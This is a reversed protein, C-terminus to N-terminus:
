RVYVVWTATRGNPATAIITATGLAIATVTGDSSVKAVAENSSTWIAAGHPMDPPAISALNETNGVTMSIANQNVVVNIMHASGDKIDMIRALSNNEIITCLRDHDYSWEAVRMNGYASVHVSRPRHSDPLPGELQTQSIENRYVTTETGYDATTGYNGSGGIVHVPSHKNPSLGLQGNGNQGFAWLSGDAKIALNHLTGSSAAVWDMAPGVQVPSFIPEGFSNMLYQWTWLTGDTKLALTNNGASVAAWDKASDMQVPTNTGYYKGWGWLTGDTKLALASAHASVAKWNKASGVQVPANRDTTTGDGLQGDRNRGWAWLSGDTKLAITYRDGASVAIWDKARGVQVPTNSFAGEGSTGIGLQGFYNQGWAWLSNDTKIALTHAGASVSKWEKATGVQTQSATMRAVIEMTESWMEDTEDGIFIESVIETIGWAWLSGDTKIARTSNGGASVAAWDKAMGIQVPTIRDTRTGDGLEGWSNSGWAWLSGDTKIALTSFGGASVAAWDKSLDVRAPADLTGGTGDGLQGEQNRGWAWVSGDSKVALTHFDGVSVAAWDNASGVRVPVNRSTTDGFGLQGYDNRGWAWLSGDTKIALTRDGNGSVASWDNASGVRVPVNRSTTDGLGLQGYGNWGWAWLTGDNKLAMNHGDGGSVSKWDKASGVQTPANRWGGDSGWIWLSGDLKIALRSWGGAAVAAWDKASGVQTPASTGVGSGDSQGANQGWEWLSGDTKLAVTYSSGASVAVWNKAFDVQTPFPLSIYNGTGLQGQGNAGWAWLSGDTKLAVTHSSGASVAVWNDETMGAEVQVPANRSTAAGGTGLQQSSNNGWAWLGGDARLAASHGGGAAVAIFVSPMPAIEINVECTATKNGDQSTVTITASGVSAATVVATLGTGSVSAVSPNSSSWAVNKNTADTPLIAAVLSGNEGVGLSMSVKDLSIGAVSINKPGDSGGNNCALFGFALALFSVTLILIPKKM